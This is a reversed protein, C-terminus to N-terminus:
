PSTTAAAEVTVAHPSMSASSMPARDTFPRSSGTSTNRITLLPGSRHAIPAKAPEGEDEVGQAHDPEHGARVERDRRVRTVREERDDDERERGDARDDQAPPRARVEPPQHERHP